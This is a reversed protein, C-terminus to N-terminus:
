QLEHYRCLENIWASFKQWYSEDVPPFETEAKTAALIHYLLKKRKIEEEESENGSSLKEPLLGNEEFYVLKVLEPMPLSTPKGDSYVELLKKFAAYLDPCPLMSRTHRLIFSALDCTAMFNDPRLALSDYAKILEASYLTQLGHSNEKFDVQILRFLDVAPFKKKSYKRAGRIMFDLKGYDPNLGSIILSSEKYAIKKLVIIEVSAM